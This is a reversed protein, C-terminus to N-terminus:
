NKNANIEMIKSPEKPAEGREVPAVDTPVREFADLLDKNDPNATIAQKILAVGNDLALQHAADTNLALLHLAIAADRINDQEFSNAFSGIYYYAISVQNQQVLSMNPQVLSLLIPTLDKFKSIPARTEEVRLLAILATLGENILIPFKAKLLRLIGNLGDEKTLL